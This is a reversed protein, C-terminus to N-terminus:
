GRGRRILWGGDVLVQLDNRVTRDTVGGALQVSVGGAHSGLAVFGVADSGDAANGHCGDGGRGAHVILLSNKGQEVFQLPAIGIKRKSVDKQVSSIGASQDRFVLGHNVKGASKNIIPRLTANEPSSRVPAKRFHLLRYNQSAYV